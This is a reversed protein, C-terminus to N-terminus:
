LKVIAILRIIEMANAMNENIEYNYTLNKYFSDSKEPFGSILFYVRFSFIRIM